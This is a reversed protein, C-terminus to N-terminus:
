DKTLYLISNNTRKVKRAHNLATGVLLVVHSDLKMRVSLEERLCNMIYIRLAEMAGCNFNYPCLMQACLASM